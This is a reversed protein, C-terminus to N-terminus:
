SQTSQIVLKIEKLDKTYPWGYINESHTNNDCLSLLNGAKQFFASFM